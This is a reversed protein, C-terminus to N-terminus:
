MVLCAIYMYHLVPFHKHLWQQLLFDILIIYESHTNTPMTPMWYAICMLWVTMQQRDPEVINKWMIEYVIHNKFFTVSIFHTNLNERCSKELVNRMRLIVLHSIIIFTYQDEHLTGMM